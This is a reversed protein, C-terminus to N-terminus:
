DGQFKDALDKALNFLEDDGDGTFVQSAPPTFVGIAERIQFHVTADTLRPCMLKDYPCDSGDDHYINRYLKRFRYFRHLFNQAKGQDPCTYSGGSHTLAQDAVERVDNYIGLRNPRRTM